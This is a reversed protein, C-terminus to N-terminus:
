ALQKISGSGSISQQVKPSGLYRVSGSGSISVDLEETVNLALDGSGSIRVQASQCVLDRATVKGSGSIHLEERQTMGALDISASGSIHVELENTTVQQTAFSGSGSIHFKFRDSMVQDAKVKGSGSVSIAELSTYTVTYNVKKWSHFLHDLWSKMGLVLRGNEVEVKLHELTEPDTEIVVSPTSGHILTLDGHGELAVSTFEPLNRNEIAM